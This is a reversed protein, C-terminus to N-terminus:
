CSILPSSVFRSELTMRLTLSPDRYGARSIRRQREPHCVPTRCELWGRHPDQVFTNSDILFPNVHHVLILAGPQPIAPCCALPLNGPHPYSCLTPPYLPVLNPIPAGPRPYPCLTPSLPVLVPTPAGPQPYPCWSPALGTGVNPRQRPEM